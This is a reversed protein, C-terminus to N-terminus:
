SGLPFSSHSFQCPVPREPHLRWHWSCLRQRRRWRCWRRPRFPLPHPRLGRVLWRLLLPIVEGVVRMCETCATTSISGACGAGDVNAVAVPGCKAMTLHILSPLLNLPLAFPFPLLLFPHFLLLPADRRPSIFSPTPADIGHSDKDAPVPVGPRVLCAFRPFPPPSTPPPAPM